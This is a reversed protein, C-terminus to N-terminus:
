DKNVLGGGHLQDQGVKSQDNYLEDDGEDRGMSGYEPQDGDGSQVSQDDDGGRVMGSM